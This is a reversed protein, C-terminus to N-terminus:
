SGTNLAVEYFLIMAAALALSTALPWGNGVVVSAAAGLGLSYAAAMLEGARVDAYDEPASKKRVEYISPLFLPFIGGANLAVTLAISVKTERNM